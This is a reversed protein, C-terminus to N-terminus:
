LDIKIHKNEFTKKQKDPHVAGGREKSYNKYYNEKVPDVGNNAEARKMSLEQSRDMLDGITGKSDATKNMFDNESWPDITGETSLQPTTYVRQWDNGDEDTYFKEENMNFFLEKYYEKNPHKFIYVPM